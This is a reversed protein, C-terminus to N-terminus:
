QSPMKYGAELFSSIALETRQVESGPFISVYSKMFDLKHNDAISQSTTLILSSTEVLSTLGRLSTEVDTLANAAFVDNPNLYSQQKYTTLTSYTEVKYGVLTSITYLNDIHSTYDYYVSNFRNLFTNITNLNSYAIAISDVALDVAAPIITTGSVKDVQTLVCNEYIKTADMRKSVVYAERYKMAAMEQMNYNIKSEIDYAAMNITVTDLMTSLTNLRAITNYTSTINDTILDNVEVINKSTSDYIKSYYNYNNIEEEYKNSMITSYEIANNYTSMLGKRVKPIISIKRAVIAIDVNSDTNISSLIYNSTNVNEAYDSMNQIYEKTNTVLRINADDNLTSNYKLSSKALTVYADLTSTTIDNIDVAANATSIWIIENAALSALISNSTNSMNSNINSETSSLTEMLSKWGASTAGSITNNTNALTTYYTYATNYSETNKQKAVQLQNYNSFLTAIEFLGSIATISATTSNYANTYLVEKIIRSTLTSHIEVKDKYLRTLDTTTSLIDDASSFLKSYAEEEMKVSASYVSNLEITSNICDNYLAEAVMYDTYLTSYYKAKGEFTSRELSTEISSAKIQLGGILNNFARIKGTDEEILNKYKEINQDIIKNNEVIQKHQTNYALLRNNNNVIERRYGDSTSQSLLIRNAIINQKRQTQQIVTTNYDITDSLNASYAQLDALSMNLLETTGKASTKMTTSYAALEDLSMAQLKTIFANSM